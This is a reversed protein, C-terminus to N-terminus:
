WSTLKQFSHPNMPFIFSSLVARLVEQQVLGSRTTDFAQLAQWVPTSNVCMQHTSSTCVNMRSTKREEIFVPLSDDGAVTAM